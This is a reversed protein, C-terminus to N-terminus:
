GIVVTVLAGMKKLLDPENDRFEIFLVRQYEQRLIDVQRMNMIIVMQKNEETNYSSYIGTKSM